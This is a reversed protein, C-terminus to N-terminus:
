LSLAFVNHMYLEKSCCVLSSFYTGIIIKGLHRGNASAHVSLIKAEFFFGELDLSANKQEECETSGM